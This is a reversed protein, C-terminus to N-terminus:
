GGPGSAGPSSAWPRGHSERRTPRRGPRGRRSHPDHWRGDVHEAEWADAGAEFLWDDAAAAGLEVAQAPTGAAAGAPVAWLFARGTAWERAPVAVGRARFFGRGDRLVTGLIRAFGAPGQLRALSEAFFAEREHARRRAALRSRLVAGATLLAGVATLLAATVGPGVPEAGGRVGQAATVVAVIALALAVLAAHFAPDRARREFTVPADRLLRGPKAPARRGSEPKGTPM